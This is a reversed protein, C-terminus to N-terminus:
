KLIEKFEEIVLEVLDQQEETARSLQIDQNFVKKVVSRLLTKGEEGKVDVIKTWLSRAEEMTDAFPRNQYTPMVTKDSVEAGDMEVQKDIADGIANVLETYGDNNFSIRPAIYKYRSGAFINPTARTYLYRDTSGDANMQTSLYGIIDVLGNIITYASSPLDPGVARIQEGNEDRMETTREKEHAIFLIGYGLLSIERWTEQFEQKVLKFGGGWAIENLQQVGNQQCVFQECLSWAIGATDVVISDYMERARPDRLQRLVSKMDSWKFMAAGKINNLANTGQEFQLFLSRPLKSGFTSKGTKPAGYILLYKGKLDRSIKSPQINFIDIAM